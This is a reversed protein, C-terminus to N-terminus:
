LNDGRHMEKKALFIDIGDFGYRANSCKVLSCRFGSDNLLFLASENTYYRYCLATWSGSMDLHWKWMGLEDPSKSLGTEGWCSFTLISTGGPKLVRYMEEVAALDNEVHELVDLCLILKVSDNGLPLQELDALFDAEHYLLDASLLRPVKSRFMSGDGGLDLAPACDGLKREDLLFAIARHRGVCRCHPCKDRGEASEEWDKVRRNCINCFLGGARIKSM